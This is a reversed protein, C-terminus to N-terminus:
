VSVFRWTTMRQKVRAAVWVWSGSGPSAVGAASVAARSGGRQTRGGGPQKDAGTSSRRRGDAGGSPGAGGDKDDRCQQRRRGPVPADRRRSASATAGVTASDQEPAPSSDAAGVAGV